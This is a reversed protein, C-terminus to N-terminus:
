AARRSYATQISFADNFLGRPFFFCCFRLESAVHHVSADAASSRQQLCSGTGQSIDYGHKPIFFNNALGAFYATNVLVQLSASFLPDSMDKAFSWSRTEAAHTMPFCVAWPRQRCVSMWVELSIRVCSRLTRDPPSPGHKLGRSWQSGSHFHYASFYFKLYSIFAVVNLSESTSIEIFVATLLRRVPVSELLSCSHPATMSRTITLGGSLLENASLESM